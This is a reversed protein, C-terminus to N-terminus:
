VHIKKTSSLQVKLHSQHTYSHTEYVPTRVYCWISPKKHLMVTSLPEHKFEMLTHNQVFFTNPNISIIKKFCVFSIWLYKIAISAEHLIWDNCQPILTAKIWGSQLRSPMLAWAMNPTHPMLVWTTHWSCFYESCLLYIVSSLSARQRWHVRLM